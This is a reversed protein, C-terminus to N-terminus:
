EKVRHFSRNGLQEPEAFPVKPTQQSIFEVLTDLGKKGSYSENHPQAAVSISKVRTNQPFLESAKSLIRELESEAMTKCNENSLLDCRTMVVAIACKPNLLNGHKIAKLLGIANERAIHRKQPNGLQDADVLLLFTNARQIEFLAQCNKSSNVAGDYEEGARDAFLLDTRTNIDTRHLALHYFQASDNLPTHPTNPNDQKSTIRSHHCLREFAYLTRSGGFTFHGLESFHLTDYISAFLTTKGVNSPGAFAIVHAPFQRLLNTANRSNLAEGDLLEIEKLIPPPKEVSSADLNEPSLDDSIEPETTESIEESYQTCKNPPKIGEVCLGDNGVNCDPNSCLKQVSISM